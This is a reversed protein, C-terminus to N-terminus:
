LFIPISRASRGAPAARSCSRFATVGSLVRCAWTAFGVRLRWVFHSSIEAISFHFTRLLPFLSGESSFRQHTASQDNRCVGSDLFDLRKGLIPRRCTGAKAFLANVATALGINAWELAMRQITAGKSRDAQADVDDLIMRGIAVQRCLASM